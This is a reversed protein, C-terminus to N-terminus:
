HEDDASMLAVTDLAGKGASRGLGDIAGSRDLEDKNQSLKRKAEISTIKLGVGVIANLQAQIFEPPADSVAWEQPRDPDDVQLENHDTLDNVVAHKWAPDDHIEVTGHLHVVEYNWTPM